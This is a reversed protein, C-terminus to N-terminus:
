RDLAGKALDIKLSYDRSGNSYDTISFTLANLSMNVANTPSIRECNNYM